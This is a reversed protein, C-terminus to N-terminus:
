WALVTLPPDDPDVGHDIRQQPSELAHEDCSPSPTPPQILRLHHCSPGRATTPDAAATNEHPASGEM